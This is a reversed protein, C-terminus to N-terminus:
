TRVDETRCRAKGTCFMSWMESKAAALTTCWKVLKHGRGESNRELIAYAHRGADDHCGNPFKRGLNSNSRVILYPTEQCQWLVDFRGTEWRYVSLGPSKMQLRDEAKGPSRASMAVRLDRCLTLSLNADHIDVTRMCVRLLRIGLGPCIPGAGAGCGRAVM